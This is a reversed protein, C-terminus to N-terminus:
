TETRFEKRTKKEEMISKAWTQLRDHLKSLDEATPVYVSASGGSETQTKRDHFNITITPRSIRYNPQYGDFGSTQTTLM